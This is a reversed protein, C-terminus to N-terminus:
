NADNKVQNFSERCIELRLKCQNNEIFKTVKSVIYIGSTYESAILPNDIDPDKFMVIDLPKVKEYKNVTPVDIRIAGISSLGILNQQYAKWYFEHVNKNQLQSGCFRKEVDANKAISSSLAMIVSPKDYEKQYAGTEINYLSLERGYGSISNILGTQSFPTYESSVPLVNDGKASNSLIWDYKNAKLKLEEKIDKLIFKSDATIACAIFSSKTYSHMLTDFIFNRDSVNYQIWNMKDLSKEVNFIPTFHKSVVSKVVEVGSKQPYISVRPQNLFNAKALFGKLSIKLANTGYREVPFKVPYVEMEEYDDSSKGFQIRLTKGDHLRSYLKKEKTYFELEFYPLINGAQETVSFFSLNEPLIFDKFNDLSISFYFQNKVSIM